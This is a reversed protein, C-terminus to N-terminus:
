VLVAMGALGVYVGASIRDIRRRTRHSDRLRAALRGAAVAYTSDCLAALLVFVLGLVVVQVTAPGRGPDVFQPLFAVFFLATKPNLLDVLVGDRFLRLRSAPSTRHAPSDVQEHRVRLQQVGLHLLYAAGAYRLLTFAFESSALLAALGAATGAVHLLAGVELGLMSYLGARRGHAISRAVVYMVSPGPIVLIALTAACFGLMTAATPM